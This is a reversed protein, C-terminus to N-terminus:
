RNRRSTFLTVIGALVILFGAYVLPTGPDNRVSLVTTEVPGAVYSSQFLSYGRYKLPNNMSIKRKLIVGRGPDTLEVDSEFAAAMEIGPYDIKRFDLLKVSFPLKHLAPRYEVVVPDKPNGGLPLAVAERLTLWAEATDTGDHAVIHLAEARVENSRNSFNRHIEVNPTFTKVCLTYGLQPHRYGTGSRVSSLVSREGKPGTLIAALKGKPTRLLAICNLPLERGGAKKRLAQQLAEESDLELFFVHTEGWQAGFRGSDRALLWIDDRHAGTSLEVQLAPNEKAGGPLIEETGVADPYYRDVVLDVNKGGELPVQFLAHPRHNWSTSEFRTPFEQEIGPNPQHVALVHNQKQLVSATQGEPIILQGEIGWRGGIIGGALMLIIGLHALLFPAHRKKWPRRSLAALALNVALFALLGQFWASQYIFRQVAATGYRAEYLTGWALVSAILILLPVAVRLTGLWRFASGM